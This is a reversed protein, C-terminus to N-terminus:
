GERGGTSDDRTPQEYWGGPTVFVFRTAPEGVKVLWAWKAPSGDYSLQPRSLAATAHKTRIEALTPGSPGEFFAAAGDLRGIQAVRGNLEVRAFGPVRKGAKLPVIWFAPAGAPSRALLPEGVSAGKLDGM